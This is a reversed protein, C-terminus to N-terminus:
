RMGRWSATTAPAGSLLDIGRGGVITDKGAFGHLSDNGAYGYIRDAGSTGNLLDRGETGKIVRGSSSGALSVLGRCRRHDGCWGARCTRALAEDTRHSANGASREVTASGNSVDVPPRCAAPPRRQDAPSWIHVGISALVSNFSSPAFRESAGYRRLFPPFQVPCCRSNAPRVSAGARSPRAPSQRPRRARTRHNRMPPVPGRNLKARVARGSVVVTLVPAVRDGKRVRVRFGEM